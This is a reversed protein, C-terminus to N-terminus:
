TPPGYGREALAREAAERDNWPRREDRGADPARPGQGALLLTDGRVPVTWCRRIASMSTWTWRSIRGQVRGVATAAAAIAHAIEAPDEHLPDDMSIVFFDSQEAAIPGDDPSQGPRARRRARVGGDARGETHPRLTAPREGAGAAHARLRRSGPVAARPRRAGDPGPVPATQAAAEVVHDLTAGLELAATTAALWNAVNFGASCNRREGAGGRAAHGAQVDRRARGSARRTGARRGAARYRVHPCCYPMARAHGGLGPRRRQRGGPAAM